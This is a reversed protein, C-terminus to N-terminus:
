TGMEISEVRVNVERVELGTFNEVLEKVKQQLKGCVAHIITGYQVAVRLEIRTSEEDILVIVGKAANKGSIRKSMEDYLGNAKTVIGPIDQAALGAIVAVVHDAIKVEGRRWGEM